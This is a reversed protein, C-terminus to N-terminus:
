AVQCPAHRGCRARAGRGNPAGRCADIGEPM